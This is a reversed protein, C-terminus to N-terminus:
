WKIGSQNLMTGVIIREVNLTLKIQKVVVVVTAGYTSINICSRHAPKQKVINPTDVTSHVGM